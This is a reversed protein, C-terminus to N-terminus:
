YKSSLRFLRPTFTNEIRSRDLDKSPHFRRLVNDETFSLAGLDTSNIAVIFKRPRHTGKLPM